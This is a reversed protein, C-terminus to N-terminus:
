ASGAHEALAGARRGLDRVHTLSVWRQWQQTYHVSVAGAPHGCSSTWGFAGSPVPVRRRRGGLAFRPGGALAAHGGTGRARRGRGSSLDAGLACLNPDAVARHVDTGDPVVSAAARV